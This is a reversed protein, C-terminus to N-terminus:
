QQSADVVGPSDGINLSDQVPPDPIEDTQILHANGCTIIHVCDAPLEDIKAQIRASIYPNVQTRLAMAENIFRKLLAVFQAERDKNRVGGGDIAEFYVLYDRPELMTASIQVPNGVSGMQRRVRAMNDILARVKALLGPGADPVEAVLKMSAEMLEHLGRFIPLEWGFVREQHLLPALEPPISHDNVQDQFEEVHACLRNDAMLTLFHIKSADSAMTWRFPPTRHADGTLFIRPMPSLVTAFNDNTLGRLTGPELIRWPM